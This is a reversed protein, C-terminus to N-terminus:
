CRSESNNIVMRKGLSTQRQRFAGEIFIFSVGVALELEAWRIETLQTEKSGDSTMIFALISQVSM